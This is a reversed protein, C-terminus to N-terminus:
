KSDLVIELTCLKDNSPVCSSFRVLAITATRKGCQVSPACCGLHLGLLANRVPTRFDCGSRWLRRACVIKTSPNVSVDLSPQHNAKGATRHVSISNNQQSDLVRRFAICSMKWEGQSCPVALHVRKALRQYSTPKDLRQDRCGTGCWSCSHVVTQQSTSAKGISGCVRQPCPLVDWVSCPAHHLVRVECEFLPREDIAVAAPLQWYQQSTFSVPLNFFVNDSRPPESDWPRSLLICLENSLGSLVAPHNSFGHTM